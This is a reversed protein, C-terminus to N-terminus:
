ECTPAGYETTTYTTCGCTEEAAAASVLPAAGASSYGAYRREHFNAHRDHAHAATVSGVLSGAALALAVTRM